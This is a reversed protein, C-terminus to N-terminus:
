EVYQYINGIRHAEIDARADRMAGWPGISRWFCFLFRVQARYIQHGESWKEPRGIKTQLRYRPPRSM